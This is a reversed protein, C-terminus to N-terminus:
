GHVMVWEPVGSLHVLGVSDGCKLDGVGLDPLQEPHEVNGREGPPTLVEFVGQGAEM